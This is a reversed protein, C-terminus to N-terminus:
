SESTETPTQSSSLCNTPIRRPSVRSHTRTTPFKSPQRHSNVMPPPCTSKTPSTAVDPFTISRIYKLSLHFITTIIYEIDGTIFVEFMNFFFVKQHSKLNTMQAYLERFPYEHSWLLDWDSSNDGRQFGLRELVRFVHKLYGSDPNKGHVWFIPKPEQLLVEKIEVRTLHAQYYLSLFFLTYLVAPGVVAYFFVKILAKIKASMLKDVITDNKM